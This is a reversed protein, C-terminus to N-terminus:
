MRSRRSGSTLARPSSFRKMWSATARSTIWALNNAAAVAGPDIALARLYQQEAAATEGAARIADRAVHQGCRSKPSRELVKKFVDGAESLRGAKVYLQGLASYAQLRGPDAEIAKTLATEAKDLDGASEYTRAALVLLNKSPTGRALRKDILVTADKVRRAALDIQVIGDLAELDDPAM